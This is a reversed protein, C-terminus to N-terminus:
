YVTGYTLMHQCIVAYCCQIGNTCQIADGGRCLIGMYLFLLADSSQSLSMMLCFSNNQMLGVCLSMGLVILMTSYTNIIVRTMADQKRYDDKGEVMREYYGM